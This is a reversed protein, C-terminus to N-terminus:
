AVGDVGAAPHRDGAVMRRATFVRHEARRIRRHDLVSAHGDAMLLAIEADLLDLEAAIVPWEAEIAQLDIPTPGADLPDV